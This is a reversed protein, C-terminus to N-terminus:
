RFKRDDNLPHSSIDSKQKTGDNLVESVSPESVISSDESSISARTPKNLLSSSGTNGPDPSIPDPNIPLNPGSGQPGNGGGLENSSRLDALNYPIGLWIEIQFSRVEPSPEGSWQMYTLGHLNINTVVSNLFKPRYILNFAVSIPSVGESSLILYSGSPNETNTILVDGICLPEEIGTRLVPTELIIDQALENKIAQLIGFYEPVRYDTKKLNVIEEISYHKNLWQNFIYDTNRLSYEFFFRNGTGPVTFGETSASLVKMM